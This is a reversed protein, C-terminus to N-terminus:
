GIGVGGLCCFASVACNHGIEAMDVLFCATSYIIEVGIRARAYYYLALICGHKKINKIGILAHDHLGKFKALGYFPFFVLVRSFIFGYARSLIM